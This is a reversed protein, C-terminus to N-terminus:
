LWRGVDFGNVRRPAWPLFLRALYGGLGPDFLKLIQPFGGPTCGGGGNDCFAEANMNFTHSTGSSETWSAAAGSSIGTAYGTAAVSSTCGIFTYPSSIATLTSAGSTHAGQLIVDDNGNLTLTPGSQPSSGTVSTAGSTDFKPSGSGSSSSMEYLVGCVYASSTGLGFSLSSASPANVRYAFQITNSGGVLISNTDLTWGSPVTITGNNFSLYAALTHGAVTASSPSFACGSNGCSSSQDTQVMTVSATAPIVGMSFLLALLIATRM